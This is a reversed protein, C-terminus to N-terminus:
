GAFDKFNINDQTSPGDKEMPAGPPRFLIGLFDGISNISSGGIERQGGCSFTALFGPLKRLGLM